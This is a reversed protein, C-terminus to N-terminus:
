RPSAAPDPRRDVDEGGALDGCEVPMVPHTALYDRAGRDGGAAEIVGAVHDAGILVPHGPTGHFTARALSKRLAHIVGCGPQAAGGQKEAAARDEDCEISETDGAAPTTDTGAAEPGAAAVGPGVADTALGWAKTASGAADAAADLASQVVRDIAATPVDPLDVLMIVAADVPGAGASDITLARLGAILSSGMGSDFDPNEVALVGDPLLARVACADAGVVVILPELSTLTGLARLVWPGDGTDALAKPGGFRKGSGAALLVGAIRPRSARPQTM